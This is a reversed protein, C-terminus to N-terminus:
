ACHGDIAFFKVRPGRTPNPCASLWDRTHDSPRPRSNANQGPAAISFADRMGSDGYAQARSKAASSSEAMPPMPMHDTM